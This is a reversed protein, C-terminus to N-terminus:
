ASVSGRVWTGVFGYRLCSTGVFNDTWTSAIGVAARHWGRLGEVPSFWGDIQVAKSAVNGRDCGFQSSLTLELLSARGWACVLGVFNYALRRQVVCNLTPFVPQIM